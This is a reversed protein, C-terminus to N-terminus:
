VIQCNIKKYSLNLNKQKIFYVLAIISRPYDYWVGREKHIVESGELILEFGKKRFLHFYFKLQIPFFVTLCFVFSLKFFQKELTCDFETVVFV